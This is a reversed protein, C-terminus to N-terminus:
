SQLVFVYILNRIFISAGLPEGMDRNQKFEILQFDCLHTFVGFETWIYVPPIM